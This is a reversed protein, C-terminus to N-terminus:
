LLLSTAQPISLLRTTAPPIVVVNGIAVDEGHQNACAVMLRVRKPNIIETVTGMAKITDNIYVPKLFRIHLEVFITGLGPIV